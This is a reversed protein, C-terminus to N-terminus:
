WLTLVISHLKSQIEKSEGFFAARYNNHHTQVPLYHDILITTNLHMPSDIQFSLCTHVSPLTFIFNFKFTSSIRLSQLSLKKHFSNYRVLFKNLRILPM